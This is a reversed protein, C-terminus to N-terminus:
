RVAGYVLFYIFHSSYLFSNLLLFCFCGFICNIVCNKNNDVQESAILHLLMDNKTRDIQTNANTHTDTQSFVSFSSILFEHLKRSIDTYFHDPKPSMQGLSSRKQSSSHYKQLLFKAIVKFVLTSDLPSSKNLPVFCHCLACQALSTSVHKHENRCKSAYM